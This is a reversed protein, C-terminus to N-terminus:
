FVAQNAQAGPTRSSTPSPLLQVAQVARDIALQEPRTSKGRLRRLLSAGPYGEAYKNTLVSGSPRSCPARGVINEPRVILEIQTVSATGSARGRPTSIAPDAEALGVTFMSPPMDQSKIAAESM